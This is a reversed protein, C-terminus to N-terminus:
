RANGLPQLVLLCTWHVTSLHTHCLQFWCRSNQAVQEAPQHNAALVAVAAASRHHAEVSKVLMYVSAVVIWLLRNRTCSTASHNNRFVFHGVVIADTFQPLKHKGLLLSDTRQFYTVASTERAHPKRKFMKVQFLIAMSQTM